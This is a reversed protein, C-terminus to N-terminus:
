GKNKNYDITQYKMTSNKDPNSWIETQKLVKIGYVEELEDM